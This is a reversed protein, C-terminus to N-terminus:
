VSTTVVGAAHSEKSRTDLYILPDAQFKRNIEHIDAVLYLSCASLVIPYPFSVIKM